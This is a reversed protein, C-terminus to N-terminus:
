DLKKLTHFVDDSNENYADYYTINLLYNGKPSKKLEGFKLGNTKDYVEIIDQNPMNKMICDFHTDVQYGEISIKCQNPSISINYTEGIGTGSDPNERYNSYEYVGQLESINLFKETNFADQQRSSASSPNSIEETKCTGNAGHITYKVKSDKTDRTITRFDGCKSQLIEISLADLNKQSKDLHIIEYIPNEETAEPLLLLISNNSNVFIKIDQSSSELDEGYIYNFNVPADKLIIKGNVSYTLLPNENNTNIKIDFMGYTINVMNGTINSKHKTFRYTDENVEIVKSERAELKEPNHAHRVEDDTPKPTQPEFKADCGQICAM